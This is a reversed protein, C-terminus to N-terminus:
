KKFKEEAGAALYVNKIGAEIMKSWCSECCWWHGWLYIDANKCGGQVESIAGQEAHNRPDCGECLEYGEGTPIHLEKRRCGHEEHYTSVNAGRALIGGDRTIVVGTPHEKDSSLTEAAARAAMMFENDAAAYLIERGAPLYPLDNM